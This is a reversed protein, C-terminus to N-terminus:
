VISHGQFQPEPDSLTMSPPVIRHLMYSKINKKWLLYVENGRDIVTESIYGCVHIPRFDSGGRTNLAGTLPLATLNVYCNGRHRCVLIIPRDSLSVIEIIPGINLRKSLICAHSLCDSPRFQRPM